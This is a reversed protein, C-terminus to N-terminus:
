GKSLKYDLNNLSLINSILDVYDKGEETITAPWDIKNAAEIM